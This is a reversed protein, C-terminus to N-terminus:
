DLAPEKLGGGTERTAGNEKWCDSVKRSLVWDM